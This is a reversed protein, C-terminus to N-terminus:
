IACTSDYYMVIARRSAHTPIREDDNPEDDDLEDSEDGVDGGRRRDEDRRVGRLEHRFNSLM